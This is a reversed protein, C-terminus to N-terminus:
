RLDFYNDWFLVFTFVGNSPNHENIVCLYIQVIVALDNKPCNLMIKVYIYVKKFSLSQQQCTKVINM